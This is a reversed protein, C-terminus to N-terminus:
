EMRELAGEAAPNDPIPVIQNGQLIVKFRAGDAMPMVLPYLREARVMPLPLRRDLWWLDMWEGSRRSPGALFQVPEMSEPDHGRITDTQYLLSQEGGVFPVELVLLRGSLELLRGGLEQERIMEGERRLEVWWTGEELADVSLSYLASDASVRQWQLTSWGIAMVLVGVLVVLLGLTGRLWPLFWGPFRYLVVAAGLAVLIGTAILAWGLM